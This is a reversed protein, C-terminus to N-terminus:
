EEDDLSKFEEIKAILRPDIMGLVTAINKDHVYIYGGWIWGGKELQTWLGVPVKIDDGLNKLYSAIQSKSESSYRGDRMLIRYAWKVKNKRLTFGDLILKEKEVSDPSMISYFHSNNGYMLRSALEKLVQEKASYFQIYPEEIRTKLLDYGNIKPNSEDSILQEKIIKLLNSDDHSIPKKRWSGGWNYDRQRENRWKIADEIDQDYRLISCGIVQIALRYLYHGHMLKVTEQQLINPNLGTWYSIDM